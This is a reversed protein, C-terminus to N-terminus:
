RVPRRAKYLGLDDRLGRTLPENAQTSALDLAQQATRLADDLHGAEAHAAALTRLMFPDAGGALENARRALEVARAGNRISADASTSLIWALNNHAMMHRHDIKLVEEYHLVAEAIRGKQVLAVALNNHAQASRPNIRLAFKFRAIAENRRGAQLLASGLNNQADFYPPHIEIAREYRTIAEDLRGKQALVLALSYHAQAYDPKINIAKHYHAIAADPMGKQLFARGLNVHTDAHGPTAELAQQFQTIAEDTQGAQLRVTGLNYHATGNNTTCALARNWLTESDKWHSTQRITLLSLVVLVAAALSGVCFVRKEHGTCWSAATWAAMIYLGIQPLYTYRDARSDEGAQILGLVPALMVLYWLWGVGLWPARRRWRLVATSIIALLLTSAILAFIGVGHRPYPYSVALNAPWFMQAIYAGCSVTANAIRTAISVSTVANDPMSMLQVVSAAVSLFILPIKELVLRSLRIRDARQLPWHDLLLLVFPTTVLMPKCLLGLTLFIIVWARSTSSRRSWRTHAGLTLMFFIGSLVDKRETIWAVSEVRLPHLAFLAAVLGCRWFSGTMDWLVLFLLVSTTAHLLVNTLHHGGAWLGFLQCDVMHSLTTLPVWSSVETHSFAWAVGSITLGRTVVPNQSVTGIDDFGVFDFWVSRGFVLVVALFLLICITTVGRGSGRASGAGQAPLKRGTDLKQKLAHKRSKRSM